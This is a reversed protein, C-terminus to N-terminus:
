TEDINERGGSLGAGIRLKEKEQKKLIKENKLEHVGKQATCIKWKDYATVISRHTPRCPIKRTRIFYSGSFMLVSRLRARWRSWYFITLWVLFGQRVSGLERADLYENNQTM